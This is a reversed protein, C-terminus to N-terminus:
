YMEIVLIDYTYRGRISRKHCIELSRESRPSPSIKSGHPIRCIPLLRKVLQNSLHVSLILMALGLSTEWKSGDQGKFGKWFQCKKNVAGLKLSEGRAVLAPLNCCDDAASASVEFEFCFRCCFQFLIDAVSMTPQLIEDLDSVTM